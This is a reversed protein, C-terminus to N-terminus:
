WAGEELYLLLFRKIYENVLRSAHNAYTDRIGDINKPNVYLNFRKTVYSDRGSNKTNLKILIEKKKRNLVIKELCIRDLKSPDKEGIENYNLTFDIPVLFNIYAGSNYARASSVIFYKDSITKPMSEIIEISQYLDEYSVSTMRETSLKYIRNKVRKLIWKGRLEKFFKKSYLLPNITFEKINYVYSIISNSSMKM